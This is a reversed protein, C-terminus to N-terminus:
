PSEGGWVDGAGTFEKKKNARPVKKRKERGGERRTKKSSSINCGKGRRAGSGKPTCQAASERVPVPLPFPIFGSVTRGM